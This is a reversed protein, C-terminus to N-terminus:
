NIPELQKRKLIGAAWARFLQRNAPTDEDRPDWLIDIQHNGSLDYAEIRVPEQNPGFVEILRVKTM